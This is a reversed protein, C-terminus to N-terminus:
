SCLCEWMRATRTSRVGHTRSSRGRLMQCPSLESRVTTARWREEKFEWYSHLHHLHLPRHPHSGALCGGAAFCGLPDWCPGPFTPLLPPPSLSPFSLGWPPLQTLSSLTLLPAFLLSILLLPSPPPSSYLRAASLIWLSLFFYFHHEGVGLIKTM